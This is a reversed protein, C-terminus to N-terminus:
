STPSRRNPSTSWRRTASAPTRARAAPVPEPLRRGHLRPPRAHQGALRRQAHARRPRPRAGGLPPDTVHFGTGLIIADVERETGDATVISHARIETIADTVLEVNPQALAPYWDNSPLIRKCGLSYHPTVKAILERTRSRARRHPPAGPARAASMLKPRKVFGVVLAERAAYVLGRVLRQLLPLRRFLSRERESTPRATHPMVWPARASSSTCSPRRQPQIEPVFQIASAGTGITAVRKGALDFDHNWRASHFM